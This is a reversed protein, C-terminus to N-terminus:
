TKAMCLYIIVQFHYIKKIRTCVLCQRLPAQNNIVGTENLTIKDKITNTNNMTYM